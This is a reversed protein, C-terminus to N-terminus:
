RVLKLRLLPVRIYFKILKLYYYPKVHSMFKLNLISKTLREIERLKQKDKNLVTYYKKLYFITGIFWHLLHENLANKRGKIYQNDGFSTTILQYFGVCGKYYQELNKKSFNEEHLQIRSYMKNIFIGGGNKSCLALMAHDALHPSGYDPFGGAALAADRKLICSSWLFNKTLDPHLLQYCFDNSEYEEVEGESKGSRICGCYIPYGPYKLYLKYFEEIMLPSVPDDDTVMIIYETSARSLSNNFSQIMGINKGNHYYRIRKDNIKKVVNEGSAEPDNDSVIIEFNKFTQTLLLELQTELYEPRRFTSMCFSVWPKQDM